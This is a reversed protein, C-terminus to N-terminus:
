LQYKIGYEKLWEIAKPVFIREDQQAEYELTIFGHYCARKLITFIKHYDLLTEKGQADVHEVKAVVHPAHPLTREIAKYIDKDHYNGTDLNVKFYPSGVDKLLKLTEDATTVFGGHNHPEVALTVGVKEAVKTCQQICKVMPGWLKAKDEYPEPWGSFIRVVPAGLLLAVDVWRNISDVEKKRNGQAAKGFNNGPSLSIVSLGLDTMRKKLGLVYRRDSKPMQEAIIDLGGVGLENACLDVWKDFTLKKKEIAKHYSWSCCGLKM